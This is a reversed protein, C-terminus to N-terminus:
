GRIWAKFSTATAKSIIIHDAAQPIVKINLRENFYPNIEKVAQRSIIFQRNARFFKEPDLQNAIDELNQNITYKQNNTTIGYIIGYEIFFYALDAVGIPILRDKFQVLFSKKYQRNQGSKIDELMNLIKEERVGLNFEMLQKFQRFAHKVSKINVPKLIYDISNVKFARIAYQNYATTFVVPFNVKTKKFVKFVIDDSLQIDFFAIDPPPNNKIWKTTEKVSELIALIKCQPELEELIAILNRSAGIEDEAILINM